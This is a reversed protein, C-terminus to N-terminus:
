GPQSWGGRVPRARDLRSLSERLESTVSDPYRDMMALLDRREAATYHSFERDLTARRRKDAMRVLRGAEAVVIRSWLGM